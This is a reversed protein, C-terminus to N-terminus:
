INHAKMIDCAAEWRLFAYRFYWILDFATLNNDEKDEQPWCFQYILPLFSIPAIFLWTYLAGNEELSWYSLNLSVLGHSQPESSNDPRM